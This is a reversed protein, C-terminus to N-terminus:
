LAHRDGKDLIEVLRLILASLTAAGVLSAFFGWASM